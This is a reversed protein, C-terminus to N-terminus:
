EQAEWKARAAELGCSCPRVGCNSNHWSYAKFDARLESLSKIDGLHRFAAGIAATISHGNGSALLLDGDKAYLQVDWGDVVYLIEVRTHLGLFDELKEMARM